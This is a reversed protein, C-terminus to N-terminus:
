TINCCVQKALEVKRLLRKRKQEYSPSNERVPEKQSNVRSDAEDPEPNNKEPEEPEKEDYYRVRAKKETMLPTQCISKRKPKAPPIKKERM